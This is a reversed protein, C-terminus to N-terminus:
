DASRHVYSTTPTYPFTVYVRSDRNTYALGHQDIFVQGDIDYARGNERFVRGCRRNQFLGDSVEVWEDDEGTLPGIPEYKALTEFMSICYPASSGSHGQAAFTRILEMVNDAIWRDPSDEPLALQKRLEFRAHDELSM